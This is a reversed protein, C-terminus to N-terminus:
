LAACTEAFFQMNNKGQLKAHYMAADAKRLLEDFAESDDPFLSAGISGSIQIKHGKIEFPRNLARIIKGAVVRIDAQTQVHPLICTFEDGGIRAVTDSKRLCERLRQAVAQLLQDGTDHGMSDNVPKFGDLDILMLAVKENYRKAHSLVYDLRDNFYRRNPLDTLADFYAMRSERERVKHREIAYRISRSLMSGNVQGKILYDQAGSQLTRVALDEDYRSTLLIVPVKPAHTRISVFTNLGESDPLSLDMIVIDFQKEDLRKITEGLQRTCTLKYKDTGAKTLSKRFLRVDSPNNEVLLIEVPKSGRTYAYMDPNLPISFNLREGDLYARFDPPLKATDKVINNQM